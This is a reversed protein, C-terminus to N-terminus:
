KGTIIWRILIGLLLSIIVLAFSGTFGLLWQTGRDPMYGTINSDVLGIAIIFFKGVYIPAFVIVIGIGIAALIRKIITITKTM